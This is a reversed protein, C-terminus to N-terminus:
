LLLEAFLLRAASFPESAGHPLAVTLASTTCEVELL